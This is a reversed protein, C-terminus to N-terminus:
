ALLDDLAAWPDSIEPGHGFLMRAGRLSRLRELSREAQAADATFRAPGRVLAGDVVGLSDGVLLVGRSEDVLSTHGATHGPTAFARLTGATAGDQLPRAGDVGDLPNALLAASPAMERVRGLGGTHDPHGHTIVVETVDDWWAGARALAEELARGAADMGTDVLILGTDHPVLYARVDITVPEPGLTGAPVVHVM